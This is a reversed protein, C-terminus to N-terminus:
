VLDVRPETGSVGSWDGGRRNRHKGPLVQFALALAAISAFFPVLRLALETPGFVVVALRELMLFGIPAGQDYDLPALLGAFSRGCINLALMAEDLWLSRNAFLARVRLGVGIVAVLGIAWGWVRSEARPENNM